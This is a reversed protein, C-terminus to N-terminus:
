RRGRRGPDVPLRKALGKAGLGPGLILRRAAGCGDGEGGAAAAAGACARVHEVDARDVLARPPEERGRAHLGALARVDGGCSPPRPVPEATPRSAGLARQFARTVVAAELPTGIRRRSSTAPTSGGRGPWSGSWRRAPGTRWSPPSSSRPCCSPGAAASPRRSWSCSSATSGPSRTASGCGAPRSTSTRGACRSCSARAAARHRARHRLAGPAPGGVLVRHAAAGAGADAARIEHSRCGRRSRRAERRQPQGHGLARRDGAGPAPRRPADPGAATVAGVRAQPQPVGARRGAHAERAPHPRARARPPARRHRPLLRLDLRPDDAERGGRALAPPVARGQRAPRPDAAAGAERAAPCRAERRGIRVREIGPLGVSAMDRCRLASPPALRRLGCAGGRRRRGHPGALQRSRM